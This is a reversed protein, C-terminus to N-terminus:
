RGHRVHIRVPASCIRTGTATTCLLVETTMTPFYDPIQLNVQQMGAIGPAQGAYPLNTLSVDHLRADVTGQNNPGLLGTAYIQVFSGAAAPNSPSNVSGDQNLIGPDFIGPYADAVQVTVPASAVGNASVVVQATNSALDAPVLVNIQNASTYITRAPKGDFTVSVNNGALNEGRITYFANRAVPGAEFTAGHVVGTIRPTPTQPPQPPLALVELTINYRAVGAPGADIVVTARYTGPTMQPTAIVVMRVPRPVLDAAPDLRIWDSGDQYEVRTTFPLIRGGGENYILFQQNAVGGQLLRFTTNAPDARLKPVYTGCDNFLTCDSPAALQTFRPYATTTLPGLNVELTPTATRASVTRPLGLFVPIQASEQRQPDADIVEYVIIGAGGTMQVETLQGPILPSQFGGAGGPDTSQIRALVLTRSNPAYQGPSVIGGFDGAATPAQATSGAVMSPVFLRADAPYGSFRIVIRTGTHAGPQRPEFSAAAGETVRTTAFFTGANLVSNFNIDGEPLPSGLQSAVVTQLSTSYLSRQPVGIQVESRNFSLLGAPSFALRATAPTGPFFPTTTALATADGRLNSLRLEVVGTQPFVFSLGNFTAQTTGGRRALSAATQGNVTLSADITGDSLERNTLVTNLFITLNGNVITGPTGTCSFVIDGLRETIGEARITPAVSTIVCSPSGQAFLAGAAAVVLFLNRLM